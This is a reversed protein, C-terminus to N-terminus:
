SAGGAPLGLAVPASPLEHQEDDDPRVIMLKTLRLSVRITVDEDTFNIRRVEVDVTGDNAVEGCSKFFTGRICPTRTCSQAVYALVEATLGDHGNEPATM